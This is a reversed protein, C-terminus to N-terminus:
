ACLPLNAVSTLEPGIKRVLVLFFVPRDYLVYNLDAWGFMTMQQKGFGFLDVLYLTEKKMIPLVLDLLKDKM